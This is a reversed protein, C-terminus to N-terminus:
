ELRIHRDQSILSLDANAIVGSYDKHPKDYWPPRSTKPTVPHGAVVVNGPINPPSAVVVHGQNDPPPAVLVRGPSDSGVEPQTKNLLLLGSAIAHSTAASTAVSPPCVEEESGPVPVPIPSTTLSALVAPHSDAAVSPPGAEEATGPVPIPIPSTTLSTLVAPHSDAIPAGADGSSDENQVTSSSSSMEKKKKKKKKGPRSSEKKKKEKVIKKDSRGRNAFLLEEVTPTGTAGEELRHTATLGKTRQEPSNSSM